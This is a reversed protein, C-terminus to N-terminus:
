HCQNNYYFPQSPNSISTQLIQNDDYNNLSLHLQHINHLHNNSGEDVSDLSFQLRTFEIPCKIDKTHHFRIKPIVRILAM